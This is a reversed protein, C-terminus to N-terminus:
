NGLGDQLIGWLTKKLAGVSIRPVVSQVYGKIEPHVENAVYGREMYSFIGTKGVRGDGVLAVLGFAKESQRGSRPPGKYLKKM